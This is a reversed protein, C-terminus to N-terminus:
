TASTRVIMRSELPTRAKLSLGAFAGRLESKMGNLLDVMITIAM